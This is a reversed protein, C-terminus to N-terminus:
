RLIAERAYQLLEDAIDISCAHRMTALNDLNEWCARKAYEKEDMDFGDTSIEGGVVKVLYFVLFSQYDLNRKHHHFFSTYIGLLKEPEVDYGTEEKFERKLTDVTDEGLEFTGGPWDYGDFQPSILAKGDQVAIGYVHVSPVLKEAEVEYTKGFVDKTTVMEMIVNYGM